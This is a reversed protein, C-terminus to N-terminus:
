VYANPILTDDVKYERTFTNGSLTFVERSIIGGKELTLLIQAGTFPVTVMVRATEGPMYVTKEPIVRLATNKATMTPGAIYFLTESKASDPVTM